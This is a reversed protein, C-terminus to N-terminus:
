RDAPLPKSSAIRALDALTDVTLDPRVPMPPPPTARNLNQSQRRVWVTRLGLTQAPIHDHFLSQAVHVTRSASIGQAALIELARRFHGPAPKYSGVDEATVVADFEVGLSRHTHEFSARDINSLILLKFRPKLEALAATTDEFPPWDRISHALMDAEGLSPLTGLAEAVRAHVARLIDPYLANPAAQQCPYEADAFARLLEADSVRLNHRAAWPRMVAMIGREWDVLTGYCDFTLAQVNGFAIGSPADAAALLHSAIIAGIRLLLDEEARTFEHASPKAVGIVGRLDQGALMPAALSGEMKTLKAGPRVVGSDDTQLNCIQVPARRQAAVGAMGKGLPISRIRDMIAEPIGRHVLIELRGSDPNWRHITGVVCDFRHLVLELVKALRTTDVGLALEREIESLISGPEHLGTM